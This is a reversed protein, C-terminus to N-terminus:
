IQEQGAPPDPCGGSGPASLPWQQPIQRRLSATRSPDPSCRPNRHAGAAHSEAMFDPTGVRYYYAARVTTNDESPTPLPHSILSPYDLDAHPICLSQRSGHLPIDRDDECFFRRPAGPLRPPSSRHLHTSACINGLATFTVFGFCRQVCSDASITLMTLLTYARPM